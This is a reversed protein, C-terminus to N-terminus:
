EYDYDTRLYDIFMDLKKVLHNAIEDHVLSEYIEEHLYRIEREQTETHFTINVPNYLVRQVTTKRWVEDLKGWYLEVIDDPIDFNFPAILRGNINEIYYNVHGFSDNGTEDEQYFTEIIDKIYEDTTVPNRYTLLTRCAEKFSGNTSKIDEFKRNFDQNLTNWTEKFYEMITDEILPNNTFFIKENEDMYHILANKLREQEGNEVIIHYSVLKGNRAVTTMTDTLLTKLGFLTKMQIAFPVDDDFLCMNLSQTKFKNKLTM